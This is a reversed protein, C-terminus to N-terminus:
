SLARQYVAEYNDVMAGASFNSAVHGETATQYSEYESVLEVLANGIAKRDDAPATFGVDETVIDTQGGTDSTVVPLGSALAELFVLGFSEHHSALLFVDATDYMAQLDDVYGHLTVWDTDAWHESLREYMPGTGVIDWQIDLGRSHAHFCAALTRVLNKREVLRCVTLIRLRDPRTRRQWNWEEPDIGLHVIEADTDYKDRVRPQMDQSPAVVADAGALVRRTAADAIPRIAAFRTPDYVDGGLVSVIYPVDHVRRLRPLFVSSPVAFQGHVIDPDKDRITKSLRRYSRVPFTAYHGDAADTIVTVEHGRERLGEALTKGFVGGGGCNETVGPWEYNVTIVHM